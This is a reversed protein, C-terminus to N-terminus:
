VSESPKKCLIIIEKSSSDTPGVENGWAGLKAYRIDVVEFGATECLQKIEQKSYRRDRVVLECPAVKESEFLERRYAVGKEDHWLVYKPSFINGTDQMTPSPELSLLNMPLNENDTRHQAISDMLEGNMVTLLFYGGQKLCFYATTLIKANEVDDAFSGVVDYLCIGCDFKENPRWLRADCCEFKINSISNASHIAKELLASGTDVGVVNHGRAALEISHRGTGCGIDFIKAKSPSEISKLFYDVEHKTKSQWKHDADLAMGQYADVVTSDCDAIWERVLSSAETSYAQESFTFAAWEELPGLIGLQWDHGRSMLSDMTANSETRDLPFNTDVATTGERMPKSVAAIYPLDSSVLNKLASWNKQIMTVECRRLTAKELARVAAPNATVLGWAYQKSQSWIARLIRTGLGKNQHDKHVVFQTVWTVHGKGALDSRQYFAYGILENGHYAQAAWSEPGRLYNDKLTGASQRVRKGARNGAGEAWIGYHASFLTACEVLDNETLSGARKWIIKSDLM